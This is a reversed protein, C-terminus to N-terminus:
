GAFSAPGETRVRRRGDGLPEVFVQVTQEDFLEPAKEPWEVLCTAGSLLCDEVGAGVIEELDRLRYLDMHYLRGGGADAYENIISFTPSSAAGPVGRAACLASILTTKGAGMPGHFAFVTSGAHAKWFRGAFDPLADLTLEETM